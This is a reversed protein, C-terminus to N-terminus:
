ARIIVMDGNKNLDSDLIWMATVIYINNGATGWLASYKMEKRKYSKIMKDTEGKNM